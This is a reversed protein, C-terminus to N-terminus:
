AVRPPLQAQARSWWSPFFPNIIPFSQQPRPGCCCRLQYELHVLELHLRL